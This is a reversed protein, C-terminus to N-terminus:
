ITLASSGKIIDEKMEVIMILRDITFRRQYPTGKILPQFCCCSYAFIIKAGLSSIEIINENYVKIEV